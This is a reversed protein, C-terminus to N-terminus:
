SLGEDRHREIREFMGGYIFGSASRLFDHPFGLEIRSVGELRQLHDASLSVDQYAMNSILQQATTAGVLPIAGKDRVWALAVQASPCGIEDAIADVERGIRLAKDDVAKSSIIDLRRKGPRGDARTYKGTLLGGALPSWAIIGLDLARSM